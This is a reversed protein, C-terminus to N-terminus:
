LWTKGSSAFWGMVAAKVTGIGSNMSGWPSPNPVMSPTDISMFAAEMFTPPTKGTLRSYDQAARWVDGAADHLARRQAEYREVAALYERNLLQGQEQRLRQAEADAALREEALRRNEAAVDAQIQKMQPHDSINM